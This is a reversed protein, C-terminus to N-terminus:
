ARETQDCFYRHPPHDPGPKRNRLIRFTERLPPRSVGLEASLKNENLREGGKIKGCVIQRRLFQLISTSINQYKLM